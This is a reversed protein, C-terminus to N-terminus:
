TVEGEVAPAPTSAAPEMEGRWARLTREIEEILARIQEAIYERGFDRLENLVPEIQRKLEPWKAELEALAQKGEEKMTALFGRLEGIAEQVQPSTAMESLEAALEAAQEGLAGVQKMLSDAGSSLSQKLKWAQLGLAGNQGYVVADDQMPPAPPQTESNHIEVVKQGSVNPFSTSSIIATADARVKEAHEPEIKVRVDVRPSPDTHLQVVKVVGIDVGNLQVRDGAQLGKADDFVLTFYLSASEHALFMGVAIVAALAAAALIGWGIKRERNM